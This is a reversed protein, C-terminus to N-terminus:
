VKPFWLEEESYMEKLIGPTKLDESDLVKLDTKRKGYKIAATSCGDCEMMIGHMNLIHKHMTTIIHMQQAQHEVLLDHKKSSEKKWRRAIYLCLFFIVAILSGIGKLVAWATAKIAPMIYPLLARMFPDPHTDEGISLDAVASFFCLVCALFLLTTLRKQYM